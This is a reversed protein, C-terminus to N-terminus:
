VNLFNETTKSGLTENGYGLHRDNSHILLWKSHLECRLRMTEAIRKLIKIWDSNHDGTHDSELQIELSFKTLM